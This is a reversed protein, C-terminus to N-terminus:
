LSQLADTAERLGKAEAQQLYRRASRADRRVGEGKAIKKGLMLAAHAHGKDAAEALMHLGRRPDRLPSQDALLIRAHWYRAEVLGNDAAHNLDQAAARIDDPTSEQNLLLVAQATKWLGTEGAQPAAQQLLRAAGELDKQIGGAGVLKQWALILQAQTIGANAQEELVAVAPYSRLRLDPEFQTPWQTIQMEADARAQLLAHNNRVFPLMATGQIALIVSLPAAVALGIRWRKISGNAKLQKLVRQGFRAEFRQAIRRRTIWELTLWAVTAAGLSWLAPQWMGSTPWGTSYMAGAALATLGCLYFAPETLESGYLRALATRLAVTARTVYSQDVLGQFHAEVAAAADEPKGHVDAIREAVLMNLESRLFDAATDLLASGKHRRWTSARAVCTELAELDDTLLHGAINDFSFIRAEPGFGYLTFNDNRARLSARRVDLRLRHRTELSQDQVTHLVDLLEGLAPLDERPLKTEVLARLTDDPTSISLSERHVVEADVTGSVHQIGSALCSACDIEGTSGCRSCGINGKGFCGNCTIKGDYECQYCTNHGSGSCTGCSRQVNHYETVYSNSSSHWVQRSDQETWSGRGNCGTCTRRKSGYCGYCTVRGSGYCSNCTTHGRGACSPCTVACRGNCQRCTHEYGVSGPARLFGSTGPMLRRYSGAQENAWAQLARPSEAQATNLREALEQIFAQHGSVKDVGSPLHAPGAATRESYSVHQDVTLEVPLSYVEEPATESLDRTDFRTVPEIHEAVVGILQGEPGSAVLTSVDVVGDSLTPPVFAQTTSETSM